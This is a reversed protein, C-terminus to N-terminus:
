WWTRINYTVPQQHTGYAVGIDRVAKISAKELDVQDQQQKLMFNWERQDLEKVRKATDSYAEKSNDKDDKQVNTGFVPKFESKAEQYVQRRLDGVNVDKAM